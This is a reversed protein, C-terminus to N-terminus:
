MHAAQCLLSLAVSIVTILVRSGSSSPDSFHNIVMSCSSCKKSLKDRVSGVGGVGPLASSLRVYSLTRVGKSM